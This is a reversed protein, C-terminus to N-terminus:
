GGLSGLRAPCHCAAEPIPLGEARLQTLVAETYVTMGTVAMTTVLTLCSAQNAQDDAYHHRIQGENAFFIFQRVGTLREGKNLQGNIRRREDESQLIRVIFLTKIFRGYDRM